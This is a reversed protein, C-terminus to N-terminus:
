LIEWVFTVTDRVDIDDPEFDMAPMSSKAEMLCEEEMSYKTKSYINLEGWNYDITLLQGLKASSADCLIEAKKKANVTAERLLEESVATPDKVTFAIEFEPHSPCGALATLTESLRNSDFDFELKLNHCCKFGEFIRKYNGNSDRESRYETQVNFNTTKLADKEFGVRALSDRIQQLQVAGNEVSTLYDMDLSEMDMTIVIYDPKVSLRGTGKVTITRPMTYEEWQM